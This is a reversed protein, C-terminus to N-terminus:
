EANEIAGVVGHPAPRHATAVSEWCKHAPNWMRDTGIPGQYQTPYRAISQELFDAAADLVAHDISASRGPPPFIVDGWELLVTRPRPGFVATFPVVPCHALRSAQAAGLAFARDDSGAFPRRYAGPGAWSVDIRILVIGGPQALTALIRRVSGMRSNAASWDSGPQWVDPVRILLSEDVVGSGLLTARARDRAQVLLARRRESPRNPSTPGDGGVFAAPRPLVKQAADVAAHPFHAGALIFSQGGEILRKLPAPNAEIVTWDSLTDRRLSMRTLYVLETRQCVLSAAAARWRKLGRASTAVAMERQRAFTCRSPVAADVVGVLTAVALAVPLPLRRAAPIVVFRDLGYRVRELPQLWLPWRELVRRVSAIVTGGM